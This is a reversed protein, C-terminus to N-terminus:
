HGGKKLTPMKLQSRKYLLGSLILAFVLLTASFILQESQKLRVGSGALSFIIIQPIFGLSSGLIFPKPPVHSIGALINTIFNSGIPLMRIILAKTFTQHVFFDHVKKLIEPTKIYKYQALYRSSYYTIACASSTAILAILTGLWIDCIFGASFAGIQRPLGVSTAICIIALLALIRLSGSPLILNLAYQIQAEDVFIFIITFLVAILLGAGLTLIVSTLSSSSKQKM